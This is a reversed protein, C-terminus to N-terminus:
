TSGTYKKEVPFSAAVCLALPTPEAALLVFFSPVENESILHENEPVAHHKWVFLLPHTQCPGDAKEKEAQQSPRPKEM